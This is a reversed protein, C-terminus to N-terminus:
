DCAKRFEGPDDCQVFTRSGEAAVSAGKCDARTVDDGAASARLSYYRGGAAHLVAELSGDKREYLARFTDRRMFATVACRDVVGTNGREALGCDILGAGGLERTTGDLDCGLDGACGALGVWACGASLLWARLQM